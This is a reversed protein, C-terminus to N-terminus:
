PLTKFSLFAKCQFAIDYDTYSEEAMRTIVFYQTRSNLGTSRGCEVGDGVEFWMEVAFM